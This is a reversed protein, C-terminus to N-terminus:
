PGARLGSPPELHGELAKYPEQLCRILAKIPEEQARTLGELAKYQEQLARILAKM